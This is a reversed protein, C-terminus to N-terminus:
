QKILIQLDSDIKRLKEKRTYVDESIELESKSNIYIVRIVQITRM